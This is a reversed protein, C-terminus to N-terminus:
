CSLPAGGDAQERMLTELFAGDRESLQALSSRIKGTWTSTGKDQGKTFSLREWVHEEHIPIGKEVPLWVLARVRFRVVFPDDKPYFIPAKDIFPGELIELVGMWRSLKTMYCILKDGPQIRAATNRQRPRFGSITRDSRGFADYTEPSFLDLYYAM